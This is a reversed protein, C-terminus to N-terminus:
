RLPTPETELRGRHREIEIAFAAVGSVLRENFAADNSEMRWPLPRHSEFHNVTQELIRLIEQREEILQLRGQVHVCLYNWTPVVNKAEYWTPSIYAHTGSFVVLVETGDADRWQENARAMHGLLTCEGLSTEDDLIFPLHSATLRGSVNAVLARLATRVFSSMCRRRM